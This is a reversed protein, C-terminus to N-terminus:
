RGALLDSLFAKAGRGRLRYGGDPLNFIAMDGPGAPDANWYVVTETNTFPNAPYRGGPLLARLTGEDAPRPYLGAGDIAYSELAAQVAHMNEYVIAERARRAYRMYNPVVIGTITGIIAVAFILEALTFGYSRTRSCM